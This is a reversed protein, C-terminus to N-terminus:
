DDDHDGLSGGLAIGMRRLAIAAEGRRSQHWAPWCEAHLWAHHEGVGFPLVMASPTEAKGCWTCCGAPSRRPNANLWEVICHEFAQLEAQNRLLGGDHGLFGAREDFRARWDEADWDARGGTADLAKALWPGFQQEDKAPKAPKAAGIGAPPNFGTVPERMPQTQSDM